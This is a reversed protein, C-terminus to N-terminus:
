FTLSLWSKACNRAWTRRQQPHVMEARYFAEACLEADEM